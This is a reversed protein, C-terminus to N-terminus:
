ARSLQRRAGLYALDRKSLTIGKRQGGSTITRMAEDIDQGDEEVPEMYLRAWVIRGRRGGHRNGRGHEAWQGDLAVGGRVCPVVGGAAAYRLLQAEFDPLSEFMVSWNRRVQEKGGFGRNPHGPQESRYNPDFCGLFANLDHRYQAGSGDTRNGDVHSDEEKGIASQNTLIARRTSHCGGESPAVDRHTASEAFKQTVADVVFNVAYM